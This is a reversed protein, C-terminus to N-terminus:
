ANFRAYILSNAIMKLTTIYFKQVCQNIIYVNHGNLNKIVATCKPYLALRDSIM